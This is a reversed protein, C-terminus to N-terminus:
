RLTEGTESALREEIFAAPLKVLTRPPSPLHPCSPFFRIDCSVRRGPGASGTGHLLLSNFVIGSGPQAHIEIPQGVQPVAPHEVPGFRRCLLGLRHSRPYLRVPWDPCNNLGTWLIVAAPSTPLSAGTFDQHLQYPGHVEMCSQQA